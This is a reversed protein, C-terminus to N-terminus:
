GLSVLRGAEPQYKSAADRIFRPMVPTPSSEELHVRHIRLNM